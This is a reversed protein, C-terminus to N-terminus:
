GCLHQTQTHPHSKGGSELRRDLDPYLITGVFSAASTPQPGPYNQPVPRDEYLFERGDSGRWGYGVRSESGQTVLQLQHLQGDTRDGEGAPSTSSIFGAVPLADLLPVCASSNGSTNKLGGIWGLFASQQLQSSNGVSPSTIVRGSTYLYRGRSPVLFSLAGFKQYPPVVLEPPAPGRNYSYFGQYYDYRGTANRGPLWSSTFSGLTETQGATLLEDAGCAIWGFSGVACSLGENAPADPMWVSGQITNFATSWMAQNRVVTFGIVGGQSIYETANKTPATGNTPLRLLAIRASGAGLTNTANGGFGTNCFRPPLPLGTTPNSGLWSANTSSTVPSPPPPQPSPPSPSPPPSSPQETPVPEPSRPPPSPPPPSPSEPPPSEPTPPPPSPPPPSPSEPPPSEPTPPPPSPLPPSPSEPSTSSPPDGQFGVDQGMVTALLALGASPLM